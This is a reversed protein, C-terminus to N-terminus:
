CKTTGGDEYQFQLSRVQKRHSRSITLEESNSMIVADYTFSIIHKYNVIISKHISFFRFQGIKELVNALRGYYEYENSQTIIRIQRGKSEFYLIDSLKVKQINYGSKFHFYHAEGNLKIAKTIVKNVTSKNIPKVLFHIPRSEFLELAYSDNASIYAIQIDERNWEERLKNALQIGNMSKLEIDLFLLDLDNGDLFFSEVKEASDFIFVLIEKNNDSAYEYITQKLQKCIESQDDCIGIRYM